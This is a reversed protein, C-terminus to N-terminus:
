KSIDQFFGRNLDNKLKNKILRSNSLQISFFTWDIAKDNLRLIHNQSAMDDM